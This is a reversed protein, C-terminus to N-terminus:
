KTVEAVLDQIYFLSRVMEENIPTSKFSDLKEVVRNLNNSYEKNESILKDSLAVELASKLRGVEENM